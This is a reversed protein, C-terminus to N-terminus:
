ILIINLIHFYKPSKKVLPKREEEEEEEEQNIENTLYFSIGMFLVSPIILPMLFMALTRIFHM